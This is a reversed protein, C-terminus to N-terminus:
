AAARTKPEPNSFEMGEDIGGWRLAVLDLAYNQHVRWPKRNGQKPFKDMGRQVYGSTFDLFPEPEVDGAIRPTAQRMGRKKMTNLLRAVYAATLDSKLTWSANTYGFSSALNPIDSYMMAKYGLSKAPDVRVGDVTFPIGSMLQMDLGTATVIVEAPLLDGSKLRIGEEEFTEIQDTVVSARGERISAFLDADPVLCIRQDWPNYRPTFHTAVDYDEGLEDRVMQILREKTKEPKRRALRYFFQGLSINKLRTLRYALKGPLKARLWNAIGDESPRAVIYTPSRQLMTVHAATKAMEPVLTVATAGSGIVVVRKGAYDLDQPWHQPHVIDGKFRDRGAFEPLYGAAYNYYGSCMFLFNCTFAVPEKDPGREVSVTWRADETSWSAGTVRHQHRIHRDIGHDRATEDLYRLISPGDAIAKAQTWPRFSYGLTYMDSDSRIGPYRFLDWTGGIRERGELIVYSRDPCDRQLFYGAGIGSIGAGVVVVDFHETM